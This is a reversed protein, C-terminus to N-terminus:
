PNALPNPGSGDALNVRNMGAAVRELIDIALDRIERLEILLMLNGFSEVVIKPDAGHLETRVRREPHRPVPTAPHVKAATDDAVPNTVDDIGRIPRQFQIRWRGHLRLHRIVIRRLM